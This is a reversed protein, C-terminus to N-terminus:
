AAPEKPRPRKRRRRRAKGAAPPKSMEDRAGGDSAQFETWWSALEPDAEGAEARLCLFDFAARFRPHTLFRAPRRGARYHFRHQLQWIEKMPYAFRKPVALKAQQEALVRDAATDLAELRTVDGGELEKALRRVPEWLLVAFLFSPVVPKGEEIRLDTNALGRTVLTIPFAHHEHNLSEETAPFLKGFLGFHRLKEFSPLGQGGLFLKIVEEFLRAPPVGELLDGLRRIPEETDPAFKFGLKASFRVARLMRVPDERYREEADGLLRLVGARLDSVGDVYDVVSFDDINYYLANVTFDRRLVDEELTGYVNDRLIMGNEVHRDGLGGDDGGRFTAVEIIEPGYRIHALRFRRGILRCNRFLSRVDEPRADTAVDFDKPERGL